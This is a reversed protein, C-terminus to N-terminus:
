VEKKTNLLDIIKSRFEAWMEYKGANKFFEKRLEECYSDEIKVGYSEAKISKYEEDIRKRYEEIFRVIKDIIIQNEEM